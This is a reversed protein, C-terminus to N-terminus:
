PKNGFDFFVSQGERGEGGLAVPDGEGESRRGERWGRERDGAAAAKWEGRAPRPGGRDQRRHEDPPLPGARGTAERPPAAHRLALATTAALLLRVM